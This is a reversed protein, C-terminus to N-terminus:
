WSKMLALGSAGTEIDTFPVVKMGWLTIANGLLEAARELTLQGEEIDKEFYPSLYQDIRGVLLPYMAELGRGVMIFNMCQLAEHFTRAPNEPVHECIRAIEVLEKQREPNSEEDAKRRSLEAYRRAYHIMAECVIIASQWFYLKNIDTEKMEQFRRLGAKAEEIM